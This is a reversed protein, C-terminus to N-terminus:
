RLTIRDPRTPSFPGEVTKDDVVLDQCIGKDEREFTIGTDEPLIVEVPIECLRVILAADVREDFNVFLIGGTRRLHEEHVVIEIDHLAEAVAM